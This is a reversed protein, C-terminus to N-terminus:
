FCVSPQLSAEDTFLSTRAFSGLKTGVVWMTNVMMQLKMEQLDASEESRWFCWVCVPVFM